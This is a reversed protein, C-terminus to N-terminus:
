HEVLNQSLTSKLLIDDLSEIVFILDRQRGRYSSLSKQRSASNEETIFCPEPYSFEYIFWFRNPRKNEFLNSYSQWGM